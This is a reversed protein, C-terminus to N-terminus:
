LRVESEYATITQWSETIIQRIVPNSSHLPLTHLCQKLQEALKDANNVARVILAANAGANGFTDDAVAVRAVTGPESWMVYKSGKHAYWPLPSPKAKNLGAKIAESHKEGRATNGHSERDAANEKRTGWTLNQLGNDKRNGNLHRAEQGNSPEGRFALLVLRHVPRVLRKDGIQLRVIKYGYRNEDQKLERWGYGRWNHGVSLIEGNLTAMYGPYGPIPKTDDSRQAKNLRQVLSKAFQKDSEAETRAPADGM